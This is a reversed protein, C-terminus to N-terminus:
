ASLRAARDSADNKKEDNRSVAAGESMLAAAPKICDFATM